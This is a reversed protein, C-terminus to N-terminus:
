SGLSIEEHQFSFIQERNIVTFPATWWLGKERTRIRADTLPLFMLKEELLHWVRQGSACHMSGSLEYGPLRIRVRVPSKQVFPYAKSGVKAGIGRGSDSDPTSVLQITSKNIYATQPRERTGDTHSITVDSLELFKGGDESQGVVVNNLLDSLRKGRPPYVFGTLVQTEVYLTVPIGVADMEREEAVVAM